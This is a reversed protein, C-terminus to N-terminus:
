TGMQIFSNETLGKCNKMVQYISYGSVAEFQKSLQKEESQATVIVKFAQYRMFLEDRSIGKEYAQEVSQYFTVVTIIEETSWDTNLPYSYSKEKMIDELIRKKKRAVTGM